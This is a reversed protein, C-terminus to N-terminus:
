GARAARPTIRISDDKVVIEVNPRRGRIFRTLDELSPYDHGSGFLRADDVLIVHGLDPASLIHDIEEHIPTEKEGKATIGHSYHGDLWFLAPQDIRPMLRGLEVASDGHIIEIRAEGQFRARAGEYLDQGLEISYLREFTGKMAEVMDGRYTGTEVFLTLGFRRAHDAIARQKILHPPPAPRGAREWAQVEEEPTLTSAPPPPTKASGFLESLRRLIRKM